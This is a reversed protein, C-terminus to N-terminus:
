SHPNLVLLRLSEPMLTLAKTLRACWRSNEKKKLFFLLSLTLLSTPSRPDHTRGGQSARSSVRPSYRNGLIPKIFCLLVCQGCLSPESPLFGSFRLSEWYWNLLVFCCVGPGCWNGLIPKIFSHDLDRDKWHAPRQDAALSHYHAWCQGFACQWFIIEKWLRSLTQSKSHGPSAHNKQPISGPSQCHKENWTLLSDLSNTLACLCTCLSWWSPKPSSASNKALRLNQTCYQM